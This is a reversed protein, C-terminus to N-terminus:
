LSAAQEKAKKIIKQLEAAKGAQEQALQLERKRNVYEPVWEFEDFQWGSVYREPKRGSYLRRSAKRTTRSFRIQEGLDAAKANNAEKGLQALVDEFLSNFEFHEERVEIGKPYKHFRRKLARARERFFGDAIMSSLVVEYMRADPQIGVTDRCDHILDFARRYNHVRLAYAITTAYDGTTVHAKKLADASVQFRGWLDIYSKLTERDVKVGKHALRSMFRVFLKPEGALVAAKTVCQIHYVEPIWRNAFFDEYIQLVRELDGREAFAKLLVNYTIPVPGSIRRKIVALKFNEYLEGLLAFQKAQALHVFMLNWHLVDPTKVSLLDHWAVAASDTKNAKLHALMLWLSDASNPKRNAAKAKRVRNEVVVLEEELIATPLYQRLHEYEPAVDTLSDVSITAPQAPANNQFAIREAEEAADTTDVVYSRVQQVFSKHMTHRSSRTARPAVRLAVTSVESRMAPRAM